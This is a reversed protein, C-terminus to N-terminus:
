KFSGRLSRLFEIAELVVFGGIFLVAVQELHGGGLPLWSPHLCKEIAMFGLEIAMFIRFVDRWM